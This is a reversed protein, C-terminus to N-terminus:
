ETVGLELLTIRYEHDILMSDMDDQATPKSVKEACSEKWEKLAENDADMGVVTDNEITLTVFGSNGMFEEVFKDPLKLLGPAYTSQPYYYGGNSNKNPQLYMM